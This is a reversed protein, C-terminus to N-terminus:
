KWCNAVTAGSGTVGKVGANTLTLDGCTDSNFAVAGITYTNLGIAIVALSHHATGSSPVNAVRAPLAPATTGAADTSYRNNAAYYREMFQQAELMATIAEARQGRMVSARYSPMAIAALIGVIAVAIMLEILTFGAQRKM